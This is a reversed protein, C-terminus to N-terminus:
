KAISPPIASLGNQSMTPRISDARYLFVFLCARYQRYHRQLRAAQPPELIRQLLRDCYREIRAFHNPPLQDRQHHLHIAFRFLVQMARPWTLGPYADVVAQLNRLQHALCLQWDQTPAKMQGAWCDSVWVQAKAQDMVDQIVDVSRNFRIVHLVAQTMWFVWEWWNQGNVRCGDDCHVVASQQVRAQLERTQPLAQQGARQLIADIGGQSITVGHLNQLAQQTRTYSLHQEQRYYVVTAELRTGFRRTMELGAPPTEMVTRQYDPCTVTYQRVEIVEGAQPPLEMIQNVALLQGAENELSVRCHECRQAKVEVIYDPQEV